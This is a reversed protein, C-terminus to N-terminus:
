MSPNIPSVVNRLIQWKEMVKLSIYQIGMTNYWGLPRWEVGLRLM